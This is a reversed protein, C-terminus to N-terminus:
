DKKALLIYYGKDKKVIECSGFLQNLKEQASPAGQKKQIVVWLEGQPLLAQYSEEFLQHVVKKGARIPPNTAIAAFKRDSFATLRDSVYFQTNSAGNAEANQKALSVARENVDSMVISRDAFAKAFSIGIPGYGCGLDLIDGEIEPETFVDILVRSGFDVEKKSFVGSDSTFVLENGKLTFRWTAPASKSQPQNTYYHDSM